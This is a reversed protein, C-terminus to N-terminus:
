TKFFKRDNIPSKIPYICCWLGDAEIRLPKNKDEYFCKVEKRGDIINLLYRANVTPLDHGFCFEVRDQKRGVLDKISEKIEKSSPLELEKDFSDIETYLISLAKIINKPIEEIDFQSKDIIEDFICILHSHIYLTQTETCSLFQQVKATKSFKKIVDINKM